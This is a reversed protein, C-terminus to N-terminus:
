LYGRDDQKKRKRSIYLGHCHHYLPTEGEMCRILKLATLVEGVSVAHIWIRPHPTTLRARVARSYIALRQGFQHGCKRRGLFQVLLRPLFVAM